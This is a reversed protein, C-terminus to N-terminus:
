DDINKNFAVPALTDETNRYGGRDGRGTWGRSAVSEEWGSLVLLPLWTLM